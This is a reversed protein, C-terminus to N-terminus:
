QELQLMLEEWEATLSAHRQRLSELRQTLRESAEASEYV